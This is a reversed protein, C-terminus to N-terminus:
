TISWVIALLVCLLMGALLVLPTWAAILDDIAKILKHADDRM